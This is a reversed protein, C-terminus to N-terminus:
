PISFLFIGRSKCCEYRQWLNWIYGYTSSTKFDHWSFVGLSDNEGFTICNTEPVPFM